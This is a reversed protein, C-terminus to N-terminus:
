DKKRFLHEVFERRQRELDESDASAEDRRLAKVQEQVQKVAFGHKEPPKEDLFKAYRAERDSTSLTSDKLVGFNGLAKGDASKELTPGLVDQAKLVRAREQEVETLKLKSFKEQLVQPNINSLRAVIDLLAQAAVPSQLWGNIMEDEVEDQGMGRMLIIHPLDRVKRVNAALELGKVKKGYATMILIDPNMALLSDRLSRPNQTSDVDFGMKKLVTQLFMLEGYDELVMLVRLM